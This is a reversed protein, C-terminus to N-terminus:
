ERDPLTQQVTLNLTFKKGDRFVAAILEDGVQANYLTAYLDAQSSLTVGDLTLLIDGDALGCASAACNEDLITVLLGGPLDWYHQYLRSITEVQFGLAPRGAVCGDAMLQAVVQQVTETPLALGAAEERPFYRLIRSVQMAVIRGQGDFVPGSVGPLDSLVAPLDLSDTRLTKQQQLLGSLILCNEADPQDSLAFITQEPQLEQASAFLAPTLDYAQIYLVALDTFPDSGVLAARLLRGDDLYVFIRKASETVHANTLIFGDASLVVGTGSLTENGHTTAYVTVLSRENHAYIQQATLAHDPTHLALDVSRNAPIAPAPDDNIGLFHNPDTAATTSELAFHAMSGGGQSSQSTLLHFNVLGLASALGGLFICVVLLVAVLGNGRRPPRSPGTHYAYEHPEPSYEITDQKHKRM